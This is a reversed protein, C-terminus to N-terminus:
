TTEGNVILYLDAMELCLDCSCSRHAVGARGDREQQGGPLRVPSWTHPSWTHPTSNISPVVSGAGLM